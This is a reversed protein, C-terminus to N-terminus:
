LAPTTRRVLRKKESRRKQAARQAAGKGCHPGDCYSDQGPKLQTPTFLIGCGACIAVGRQAVVFTIQAALAGYLSGVYFDIGWRGNKWRIQPRVGAAFLVGNLHEILARRDFDVTRGAVPIEQAYFLKWADSTGPHVMALDYAIRLTGDLRQSIRRWEAISEAHGKPHKFLCFSDSPVSDPATPGGEEPPPHAPCPHLVGWRRAFTLVREAPGSHLGVFGSLLGKFQTVRKESGNWNWILNDNELEIMGPVCYEANIALELRGREGQLGDLAAASRTAKRM